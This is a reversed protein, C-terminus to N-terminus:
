GGLISTVESIITDYEKLNVCFLVRWHMIDEDNTYVKFVM